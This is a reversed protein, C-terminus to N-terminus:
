NNKEPSNEIGIIQKVKIAFCGDVVVVSGTAFKSGSLYLDVPEDIPKDLKIVSGPALQLLRKVPINTQGITVTIQINMDLLIDISGGSSKVDMEAAESFEVEQVNKKQSQKEEVSDDTAAQVM